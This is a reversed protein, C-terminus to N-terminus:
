VDRWREHFPGQKRKTRDDRRESQEPEMVHDVSGAISRRNIFHTSLRRRDIIRIWAIHLRFQSRCSACASMSIANRLVRQIRMAVYSKLLMIAARLVSRTSVEAPPRGPATSRACEGSNRRFIPLCPAVRLYVYWAVPYVIVEPFLAM